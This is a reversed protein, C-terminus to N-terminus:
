LAKAFCLSFPSEAYAGWSEIPRYGASEYLAIAPAQLTGTELKLTTWGNVRAHAELSELVVRSIGRGRFEPLVFMRKIEAYDGFNVFAGCGAAKGNIQAMLFTVNSRRLAEVSLLHNSEAPYLSSLYNDLEAILKRADPSGPDGLHITVKEM